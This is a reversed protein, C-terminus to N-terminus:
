RPVAAPEPSAVATAEAAERQAQRERDAIRFLDALTDAERLLEVAKSLPVDARMVAQRAAGEGHYHSILTYKLYDSVYDREVAFTEESFDIKKTERLYEKFEDILAEDPTFTHSISSHAARYMVAFSFFANNAIVDRLLDRAREDLEGNHIVVDPTVGGAGYVTRGMRTQYVLSDPVETEEGALFGFEELSSHFDADGDRQISRGSTTYYRPTTLKLFYGDDLPFLSQVLGKGWTSQGVLLARDQDQLAGALIESASASSRDVLLVMPDEIAQDLLGGPNGRVDLILARMGTRELERVASRLEDRGRESFQTFRVYGIRDPLMFSYPVSSLTIPQRVIDVEFTEDLGERGITLTVQSGRPGRLEQVAKEESWGRTSSGDVALIRDGALLGARYAPTGEIPAIVTLITEVVDIRIGLGEYNGETHIRLDQYDDPSLLQSYPDLTMLMGDLARMYLSDSPIEDVYKDSVQHIAENLLKIAKYPDDGSSASLDDYIIGGTLVALFFLLIFLTGFRKRIM